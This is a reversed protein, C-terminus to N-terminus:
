GPAPAATGARMPAAQAVGCCKKYKRSSGCWCPDNRGPPWDVGGGLRLCEAAYGARAQEPDEGHDACWEVFEDVIIPAIARVQVGHARLWKVHGDMRRCYDAHPVEAWDEALSGWRGIAKEYEDDPFWAM